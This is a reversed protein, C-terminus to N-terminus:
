MLGAEKIKIRIELPLKDFVEPMTKWDLMQWWRMADVKAKAKKKEEIAKEFYEPKGKKVTKLRVIRKCKDCYYGVNEYISECAHDGGSVKHSEMYVDLNGCKSCAYTVMRKGVHSPGYEEMYKWTEPSFKLEM